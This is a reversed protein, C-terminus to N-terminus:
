KRVEIVFREHKARVGRARPNKTGVHFQEGLSRVSGRAGVSQACEAVAEAVPVRVGRHTNNVVFFFGKAGEPAARWVNTLADFMGAFYIQHYRRYYIDEDYRQRETLPLRDVDAFFREVSPLFPFNLRDGTGKIRTQGILADQKPIFGVRRRTALWNLFHHEPEFMSYYDQTNPFPPSSLVSGFELQSFDYSRTDGWVTHHHAQSGTLTVTRLRAVLAHLYVEFDREWGRTLILGGQRTRAAVSTESFASFRGVFPLLLALPIPRRAEDHHGDAALVEVIWDYLVLLGELASESFYKDSACPPVDIEPLFRCERQLTLVTDLIQADKTPNNLLQWLYQPYNLEVGITSASIAAGYQHILGFGSFPDLVPAQAAIQLIHAGEDHTYAAYARGLNILSRYVMRFHVSRPIRDVPALSKVADKM